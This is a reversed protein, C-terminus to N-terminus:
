PQVEGAPKVERGASAILPQRGRSGLGAPACVGCGASGGTPPFPSVPSTSGSSQRALPAGAGALGLGAAPPLASGRSRGLVALARHAALPPSPGPGPPKRGPRAPRRRREGGVGGRERRPETSVGAPAEGGQEHGRRGPSGGARLLRLAPRPRPAEM